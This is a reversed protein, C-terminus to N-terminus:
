WFILIHTKIYHLSNDNTIFLMHIACMNIQYKKSVTGEGMMPSPALEVTRRTDTIPLTMRNSMKMPTKMMLRLYAVLRSRMDITEWVGWFLFCDQMGAPMETVVGEGRRDTRILTERDRERDTMGRSDKVRELRGDTQRQRIERSKRKRKEEKKRHHRQHYQSLEAQNTDATSHTDSDMPFMEQEKGGTPTLSARSRPPQTCTSM